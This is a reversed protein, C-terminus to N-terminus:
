DSDNPRALTSCECFVAGDIDHRNADTDEKDYRTRSQKNWRMM